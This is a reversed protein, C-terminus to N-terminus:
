INKDMIDEDNNIVNDFDFEGEKDLDFRENLLISLDIIIDNKDEEKITIGKIIEKIIYLLGRKNNNVKITDM